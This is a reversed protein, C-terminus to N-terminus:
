SPTSKAAHNRAAEQQCSDEGGKERFRASARGLGGNDGGAM